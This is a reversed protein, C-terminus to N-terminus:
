KYREYCAAESQKLRDDNHTALSSPLKCDPERELSKCDNDWNQSYNLFAMQKCNDINEQRVNEKLEEEQQKEQREIDRLRQQEQMQEIAYQNDLVKQREISAQKLHQSVILGVAIIVAGIVVSKNLTQNEM